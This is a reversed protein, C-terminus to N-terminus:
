RAPVPVAESAASPMGFFPVLGFLGKLSRLAGLVAAQTPQPSQPSELALQSARLDAGPREGALRQQAELRNLYTRDAVTGGSDAYFFQSPVEHDRVWRLYDEHSSAAALPYGPCHCFVLDLM